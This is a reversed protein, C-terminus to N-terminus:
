RLVTLKRTGQRRAQIGLQTLWRSLTSEGVGLEDALEQLTAGEDVYRERIVDELPRGLEAQLVQM